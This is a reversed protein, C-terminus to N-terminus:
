YDICYKNSLWTPVCCLEVSTPLTTEITSCSFAELFIESTIIYSISNNCIVLIILLVSELLTSYTM